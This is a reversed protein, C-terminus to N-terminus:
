LRGEGTTMERGGYGDVKGSSSVNVECAGREDRGTKFEVWASPM